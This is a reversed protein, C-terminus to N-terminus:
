EDKKFFDKEEFFPVIEDYMGCIESWHLRQGIFYPDKPCHEVMFFDDSETFYAGEFTAADNFIKEGENMEKEFANQNANEFIVKFYKVPNKLEKNKQGDWNLFEDITSLKKGSADCILEADLEEVVRVDSISKGVFKAIESIQYKYDQTIDM